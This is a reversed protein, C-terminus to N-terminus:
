PKGLRVGAQGGYGQLMVLILVSVAVWLQACTMGLAVSPIKDGSPLTYHSPLKSKTTLTRNLGHCGMGGTMKGLSSILRQTGYGVFYMVAFAVLLHSLVRKSKKKLTSPRGFTEEKDIDVSPLPEYAPSTM